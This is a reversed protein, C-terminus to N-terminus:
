TTRAVKYVYDPTNNNIGQNHRNFGNNMWENSIILTQPGMKELLIKEVRGQYLIYFKKSNHKRQSTGFGDSRRVLLVVKIDSYM